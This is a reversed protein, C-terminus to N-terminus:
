YISSSTSAKYARLINSLISKLLILYIIKNFKNIEEVTKKAEDFRDAKIHDDIIKSGTNKIELRLENLSDEMKNNTDIFKELMESINDKKVKSM